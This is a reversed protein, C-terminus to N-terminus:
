SRLPDGGLTACLRSMSLKKDILTGCASLTGCAGLVEGLGLELELGVAFSRREMSSAFQLGARRQRYAVLKSCLVAAGHAGGVSQNGGGAAFSSGDKGAASGPHRRGRSAAWLRGHLQGIIIM